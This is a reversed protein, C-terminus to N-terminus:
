GESPGLLEWLADALGRMTFPKQLFGIPPGHRMRDRVEEVLFGTLVLAPLQPRVARMRELARDGDLRPMTLDLVVLRFREPAAEFRALAEEGDAVQTVRMGFREFSRVLVQRISPDDDAVLVEGDGLWALARPGSDPEDPDAPRPGHIRSM